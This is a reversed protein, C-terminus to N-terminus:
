EEEPEIFNSVRPLTGPATRQMNYAVRMGERYGKEWEATMSGEVEQVPIVKINPDDALKPLGLKGREFERGEVFVRELEEPEPKPEPRFIRTSAVGENFGKMREKCIVDENNERAAAFGAIACLAGFAALAAIAVYISPENQKKVCKAFPRPKRISLRVPQTVVANAPLTLCMVMMMTLVNKMTRRRKIITPMQALWTGCNQTNVYRGGFRVIKYTGNARM